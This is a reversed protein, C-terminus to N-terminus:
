APHEHAMTQIDLNAHCYDTDALQMEALVTAVSALRLKPLMRHAVPVAHACLWQISICRVTICMQLTLAVSFTYWPGHIAYAPSRALLGPLCVCAKRVHGCEGIAYKLLHIVCYMGTTRLPCRGTARFTRHSSPWAQKGAISTCPKVSSAVHMCLVQM